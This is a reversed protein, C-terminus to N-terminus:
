IKRAETAPVAIEAPAAQVPQLHPQLRYPIKGGAQQVRSDALPFLGRWVKERATLAASAKMEELSLPNLNMRVTLVGSNM